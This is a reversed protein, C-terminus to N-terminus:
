EKIVMFIKEVQGAFFKKALKLAEEKSKDELKEEYKMMAEVFSYSRQNKEAGKVQLTPKNISQNVWADVGKKPDKIKDVLAWMLLTRIRTGQCQQCTFYTKHLKDESNKSRQVVKERFIIGKEKTKFAVKFPPLLGETARLGDKGTFLLGTYAIDDETGLVEKVLSRAEQQVLLGMTVKDTSTAKSTKLKKIIVTNRLAENEVADLDERLTASFVKEEEQKSLLDNMGQRIEIESEKLKDISEELEDTKISSKRRDEKLEAMISKLMGMISEDEKKKKTTVVVEEEEEEVEVHQRKKATKPTKQSLKQTLEENSWDMGFNQFNEIETKGEKLDAMLKDFFKKKGSDTLHVKDSALDSPGIIPEGVIIVNAPSYITHQEKIYFKIQLLKEEMWKPDQRLFPNCILYLRSTNEIKAAETNVVINQEETVAKIIGETPKGKGTKLNIENLITAIYFLDPKVEREKELIAKISANNTAQEFQIEIGIEKNLEEKYKLFTQRLNSDGILLFMM